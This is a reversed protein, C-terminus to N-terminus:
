RETQHESETLVISQLAHRFVKNSKHEAQSFQIPGLHHQTTILATPQLGILNRNLRLRETQHIKIVRCNLGSFNDSRYEAVFM